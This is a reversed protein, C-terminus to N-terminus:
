IKRPLAPGPDPRPIPEEYDEDVDSEPLKESVVFVDPNLNQLIQHM